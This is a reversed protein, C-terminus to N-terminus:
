RRVANVVDLAYPYHGRMLTRYTKENVLHKEEKNLAFYETMAMLRIFLIRRVRPCNGRKGAKHSIFLLRKVDTPDGKYIWKKM